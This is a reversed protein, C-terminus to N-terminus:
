IHLHPWTPFQRCFCQLPLCMSGLYKNKLRQSKAPPFHNSQKGVEGQQRPSAGSNRMTGCPFHHPPAKVALECVGKSFVLTHELQVGCRISQFLFGVFILISILLIIFCSCLQNVFMEDWKAAHKCRCSPPCAPSAPIAADGLDDVPFGM